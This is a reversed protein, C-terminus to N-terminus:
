QGLLKNIVRKLGQKWFHQEIGYNKKLKNCDLVSYAPRKALTPRALMSIATVEKVSLSQYKKAEEIIAVAFQYWSVPQLDCYHFTGYKSPQKIMRYIVRAINAADTPCTIQDGVISLKEQEKALQLITKVFNHGHESFVGSVRLIIHQECYERIAQEGQWKTEGYINIPHPTNEEHYPTKKKGDFVYDTSLHILIIKNKKCAIALNKAGLQNVRLCAIINQEAKDVATYAATNILFDPSFRTIANQISTSDTIDMEKHSCARIKFTTLDATQQLVSGIQGNGGTILINPLYNTM